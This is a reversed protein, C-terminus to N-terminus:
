EVIRVPINSTNLVPSRLTFIAIRSQGDDNISQFTLEFNRISERSAPNANRALDKFGGSAMLNVCVCPTTLSIAIELKRLEAVVRVIPVDLHGHFSLRNRWVVELRDDRLRDPIGFRLALGEDSNKYLADNWLRATIYIPSEFSHPVSLGVSYFAIRSNRRDDFL